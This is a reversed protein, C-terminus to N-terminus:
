PPAPEMWRRWIDNRVFLCVPVDARLGRPLSIHSKELATVVADVADPLAFVLPLKTLDPPAEPWYGIRDFSRLYWPLPWYDTGIVGVPELTGGPAIQRLQDLWPELKEIDGRTPVYAYPNREDSAYRGTALRTQRFQTILCTAALVALATQLPLRHGSFGVM